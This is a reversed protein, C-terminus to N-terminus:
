YFFSHIISCTLFGMASRPQLGAKGGQGVRGPPSLAPLGLDASGWSGWALVEGVGEPSCCGLSGVECSLFTLLHGPPGPSLGMVSLQLALIPVLNEQGM